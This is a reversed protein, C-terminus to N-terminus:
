KRIICLKHKPNQFNPIKSFQTPNRKGTFIKSFRQNPQTGNATQADTNAGQPLQDHISANKWINM